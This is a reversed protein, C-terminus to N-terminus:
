MQTGIRLQASFQVASKKECSKWCYIKLKGEEEGIRKSFFLFCEVFAEEAGPGTGIM